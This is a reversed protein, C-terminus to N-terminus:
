ASGDRRRADVRDLATLGASAVTAHPDLVQGGAVLDFAGRTDVRLSASARLKDVVEALTSDAHALVLVGMTDGELFGYLPVLM